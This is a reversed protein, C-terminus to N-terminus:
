CFSRAVNLGIQCIMCMSASSVCRAWVVNFENIAYSRLTEYARFLKGGDFLMTPPVDPLLLVVDNAPCTLKMAKKKAVRCAAIDKLTRCHLVAETMGRPMSEEWRKLLIKVTKCYEEQMKAYKEHEHLTTGNSVVLGAKTLAINQWLKLHHSDMKSARTADARFLSWLLAPSNWEEDLFEVEEDM